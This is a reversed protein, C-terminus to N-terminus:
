KLDGLAGLAELVASEVMAALADYTSEGEARTAAAPAGFYAGTGGAEKFSSAGKKIAQSLSIPVPPLGARIEERVLDPTAAIVLSTEYQGAHCAGSRFEDTLTLAWRRETVDPFVVPKGAAATVTQSAERLVKLHEPELHSNVLCILRFGQALAAHCIECILALATGRSLSLGGRFDRAFETIAYSLAPLVMPELDRTSLLIAARRAAEVSIITDAELPLHPGHPETSGIPLLAVARDRSVTRDVELYTRAGLDHERAM